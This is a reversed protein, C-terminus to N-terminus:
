SRLISFGVRCRFGVRQIGPVYVLSKETWFFHCILYESISLYQIGESLLLREVGVMQFIQKDIGDEVWVKGTAGDKGWQCGSAVSSLFAPGNDPRTTRRTAPYSAHTDSRTILRLSPHFM